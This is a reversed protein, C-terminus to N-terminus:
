SRVDESPLTEFMNLYEKLVLRVAGFDPFLFM